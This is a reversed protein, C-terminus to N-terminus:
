DSRRMLTRTIRDASESQPAPRSTIIHAQLFSGITEAEREITEAYNTRGLVTAWLSPDLDGLILGDAATPALDSGHHGKLLHGFEHAIIHDQHAPSTDPDYGIYNVGGSRIVMGCPTTGDASKGPAIRIPEGILEEIYGRLDRM